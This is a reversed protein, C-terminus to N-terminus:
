VCPVIDGLNGSLKRYSHHAMLQMGADLVRPVQPRKSVRGISDQRLVFVRHRNKKISSYKNVGRSQSSHIVVLGSQTRIDSISINCGLIMLIFVYFLPKTTADTQVATLPLRQTKSKKNLKISVPYYLIFIFWEYTEETDTAPGDSITTRPFM